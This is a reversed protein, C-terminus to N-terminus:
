KMKGERPGKGKGQSVCLPVKGVGKGEASPSIFANKKGQGGYDTVISAM